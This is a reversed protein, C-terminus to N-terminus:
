TFILGVAELKFMQMLTLTFRANAYAHGCAYAHICEYSTPMFMLM